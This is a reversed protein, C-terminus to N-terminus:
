LSAPLNHPSSSARKQHPTHLYHPPSYASKGTRRASLISAVLLETVIPIGDLLETVRGNLEDKLGDCSMQLSLGTLNHDCASAVKALEWVEDPKAQNMFHPV